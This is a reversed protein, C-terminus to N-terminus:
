WPSGRKMAVRAAEVVKDVDAKDGEQVQCIVDETAPNISDFTKGSVSDVFQNNIFLQTRKVKVDKIPKPTEMKTPDEPM